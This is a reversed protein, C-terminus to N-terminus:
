KELDLFYVHAAEAGNQTIYYKPLIAMKEWGMPEFAKVKENAADSVYGYLSQLRLETRCYKLLWRHARLVFKGRYAPSFIQHIEAKANKPDIDIMFVGGLVNKTEDLLGVMRNDVGEYQNDLINKLVEDPYGVSPQCMMEGMETHNMWGVLIDLIASNKPIPKM